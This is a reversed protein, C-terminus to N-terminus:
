CEFKGREQFIDRRHLQRYVFIFYYYKNFLGETQFAKTFFVIVTLSLVVVALNEYNFQLLSVPSSNLTLTIILWNLIQIHTLMLTLYHWIKKLWTWTCHSLNLGEKEVWSSIHSIDRSLLPNSSGTKLSCKKTCTSSLSFIEGAAGQQSKYLPTILSHINDFYEFVIIFPM